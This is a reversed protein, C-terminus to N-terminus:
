LYFNLFDFSLGKKKSTLLKNLADGVSKTIQVVPISIKISKDDSCDMEFLESMFYVALDWVFIIMYFKILMSLFFHLLSLNWNTFQLQLALVILPDKKGKKVIHLPNLLFLIICCHKNDYNWQSSRYLSWIHLSIPSRKVALTNGQEREWRRPKSIANSLFCSWHDDM